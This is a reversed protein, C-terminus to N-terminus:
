GRWQGKYVENGQVHGMCLGESGAVYLYTYLDNGKMLKRVDGDQGLPLLEM